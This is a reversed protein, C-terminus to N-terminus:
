SELARRNVRNLEELINCPIFPPHSGSKHIAIINPNVKALISSFPISLMEIDFYKELQLLM